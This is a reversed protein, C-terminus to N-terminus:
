SVGPAVGIGAFATAARSMLTAVGARLARAASRLAHMCLRVGVWHVYVFM